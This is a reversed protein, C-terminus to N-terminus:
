LIIVGVSEMRTMGRFRENNIVFAMQQNQM